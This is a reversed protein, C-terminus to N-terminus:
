EVRLIQSAGRDAATIPLQKGRSLIAIASMFGGVSGNGNTAILDIFRKRAKLDIEFIFLQNDDSDSPLTSTSGGINTDTGFVAGDIDSFSGGTTTAEQVKLVAVAIDNAGLNCIITLYEFGESDIEVTTWSGDDLIARPSIVIQFKVAQLNVM